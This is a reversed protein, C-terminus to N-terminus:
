KWVNGSQFKWKSCTLKQESRPLPHSSRCVNKYEAGHGAVHWLLCCWDCSARCSRRNDGTRGSSSSSSRRHASVQGLQFIVAFLQLLSEFLYAFADLILVRTARGSQVESKLKPRHIHKYWKSIWQWWGDLSMRWLNIIMCNYETSTACLCQAGPIYIFRDYTYGQICTFTYIYLIKSLIYGPLDPITGRCRQTCLM